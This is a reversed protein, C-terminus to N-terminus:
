SAIPFTMMAAYFALFTISHNIDCFVADLYAIFPYSEIHAYIDVPSFFLTRTNHYRISTYLAISVSYMCCRNTQTKRAYSQDSCFPATIITRLTRSSSSSYWDQYSTSVISYEVLRAVQM